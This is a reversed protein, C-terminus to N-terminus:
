SNSNSLTYTHKYASLYSATSVSGFCALMILGFSKDTMDCEIDGDAWKQTVFSQDGNWIGGTFGDEKVKSVKDNYKFTTAHLWYTPAVGTGRVTEKGVGIAIM